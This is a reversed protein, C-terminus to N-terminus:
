RVKTWGWSVACFLGGVLNTGLLAYFLVQGAVDAGFGAMVLTTRVLYALATSAACFVLVLQRMSRGLPALKDRRAERYDQAARYLSVAWIASFIASLVLIAPAIM